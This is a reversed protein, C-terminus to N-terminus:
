FKKKPTLCASSHCDVHEVQIPLNSISPTLKVERENQLTQNWNVNQKLDIPLKPIKKPFTMSWNFGKVQLELPKVFKQLKKKPLDNVL